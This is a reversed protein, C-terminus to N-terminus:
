VKEGYNELYLLEVQIQKIKNKMREIKKFARAKQKERKFVRSNLKSIRKRLREKRFYLKRLRNIRLSELPFKFELKYIIYNYLLTTSLLTCFIFINM